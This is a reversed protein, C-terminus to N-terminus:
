NAISVAHAAEDIRTLSGTLGHAAEDLAAPLARNQMTYGFAELGIEAAAFTIEQSRLLRATDHVIRMRRLPPAQEACVSWVGLAELAAVSGLLLATTRHDDQAPRKSILVCEVGASAIAIAATLGAPGGGVVAVEPKLMSM